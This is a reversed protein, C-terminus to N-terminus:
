ANTVEEVSETHPKDTAKKEDEEDLQKLVADVSVEGSEIKQNFNELSKSRFFGIVASVIVCAGSVGLGILMTIFAGAGLVKDTYVVNALKTYATETVGALPLWFIRVIQMVGLVIQLWFLKRNYNKVQESCLFVVLMFVLNYLVDIAIPWRYYYNDNKVQAYLVVFYVCCFVIGLIALMSALKNKKYRQIDERIVPNVTAKNKM